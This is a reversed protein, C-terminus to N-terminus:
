PRVRAAIREAARRLTDAAALLFPAQEAEPMQDAVFKIPTLAALTLEGPSPNPLSAEVADMMVSGILRICALRDPSITTM